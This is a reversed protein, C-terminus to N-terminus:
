AAAAARPSQSRKPDRNFVTKYEHDYRKQDASFIDKFKKKDDEKLGKWESGILKSTETIAMNKFDGTRQREMSFLIYPPLPRKVKRDDTIPPYKGTASRRKLVARANNALRIQDPTHSQVWQKYKVENTTKNQNALHTYHELELPTLSKYRAAAEKSPLSHAEKAMEQLVMGWATSPLAKPTKLAAQKLNRTAARSKKEEAAKKQEPTVARKVQAKKKPAARKSKKAKTSKRTKRGGKTKPAAKKKTTTSRGVSRPRGARSPTKKSTAYARRGISTSVAPGRSTSFFQFTLAPVNFRNSPPVRHPVRTISNTSIKPGKITLFRVGGRCSNALM